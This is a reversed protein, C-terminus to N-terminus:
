PQEDKALFQKVADVAEQPNKFNGWLAIENCSGEVFLTLTYREEISPEFWEHITRQVAYTLIATRKPALIAIAEIAQIQTM